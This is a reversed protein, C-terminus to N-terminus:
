WAMDCPAVAALAKRLRGLAQQHLQSVRVKTINRATAIDVFATHHLYHAKVVYRESAPLQEILAHLQRKMQSLEVRAYANQEGQEGGEQYMASGELMYGLALGIAIEALEAFGGGRVPKGAALSESRDQQIQRWSAIQQHRESMVGVGDLVAGRIRLASYTRFSAGKAPDYHQFAEMMGLTAFQLYDAFPLEDGYRGRYLKKAMIHAFVTYKEVLLDRAALDGECRWRQWLLAEGQAEDPELTLDDEAV